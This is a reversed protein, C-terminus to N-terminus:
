ALLIGRQCLHGVRGPDLGLGVRRRRVFLEGGAVPGAVPRGEGILAAPVGYLTGEKQAGVATFIPMNMDLVVLDIASGEQAFLDIAQQGDEALITSFGARALVRSLARRLMQEDDAVLITGNNSM